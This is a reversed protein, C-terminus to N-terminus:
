SSSRRTAQRKKVKSVCAVHETGCSKCNIKLEFLHQDPHITKKAQLTAQKCVPCSLKANLNRAFSKELLGWAESRRKIADQDVFPDIDECTVMEIFDEFHIRSPVPIPDLGAEDLVLKAMARLQSWKGDTMFSEYSQRPNLTATLEFFQRAKPCPAFDELWSGDFSEITGRLYNAGNETLAQEDAAEQLPLGGLREVQRAVDLMLFSFLMWLVDTGSEWKMTNVM